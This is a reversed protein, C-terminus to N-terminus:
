CSLLTLNDPHQFQVGGLLQAPKCILAPQLVANQNLDGAFRYCDKHDKFPKSRKAAHKPLKDTLELLSSTRQPTQEPLQVSITAPSLSRDHLQAHLLKCCSYIQYLM